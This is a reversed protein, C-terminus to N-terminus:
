VFKALRAGPEHRGFPAAHEGNHSAPISGNANCRQPSAQEWAQALAAVQVLTARIVQALRRGDAPEFFADNTVIFTGDSMQWANDYSGPLEIQGTPTNASYTEVGRIAEVTGRQTRDTSANGSRWTQMSIDSIDSYARSMIESQDKAGAIGIQAVKANSGAIRASWQPDIRYNSSFLEFGPLYTEFTASPAAYVTITSAQGMVMELPPGVGQSHGFSMYTHSTLLSIIAQMSAGEDTFSIHISTYDMWSKEYPDGAQEFSFTALMQKVSPDQFVELVRGDPMQSVISRVFAEASDYEGALCGQPIQNGYSNAQWARDPVLTISAKGDPSTAQWDTQHGGQCSSNSNWFVGGRTTWDAPVLSSASLMPREFGGTDMVQAVKVHLQGSEANASALSFVTFIFAILYRM